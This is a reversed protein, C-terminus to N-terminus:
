GDAGMLKLSEGQPEGFVPNSNTVFSYLFCCILSFILRVQGLNKMGTERAVRSAVHYGGEIHVGFKNLYVHEAKIKSLLYISALLYLSWSVKILEM